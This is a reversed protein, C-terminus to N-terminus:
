IPRALRAEAAAFLDKWHPQKDYKGAVIRAHVRALRNRAMHTQGSAHEIDALAFERLAMVEPPVDDLSPIAALLDAASQCEGELAARVYSELISLTADDYTARLAPFTKRTAAANGARMAAVGDFYAPIWALAPTSRAADVSARLEANWHKSEIGYRWLSLAWTAHPGRKLTGDLTAQINAADNAHRRGWLPLSSGIAAALSFLGLAYLTYRTDTIDWSATPGPVAIAILVGAMLWSAIPGGASVFASRWKTDHRPARPSPLVFGAFDPGGYNGVFRLSGGDLRLAIPAVHIIWVRWGVLWAAIAHGLEHVLVAVFGGFLITCLSVLPHHAAMAAGMGLVTVSGTLLFVIFRSIPDRPDERAM